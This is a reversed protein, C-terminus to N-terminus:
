PARNSRKYLSFNPGPREVGDFGAFPAYFMDQPDYVQGGNSPFAPFDQIREYGHELLQLVEPQTGSPLPSDQLLIWEPTGAAPRKDPDVVFIRRNRDWVWARYKDRTFQVYGYASGSMLVTSGAPVHDDFWRAVVVRNDTQSIIRDFRFSSIAPPLVLLVAVVAVIAESKIFRTVFRAAALCVFPVLPIAYRFFLNRISGAVVFYTIPFSLLLFATRPEFVFLAAAGAIGAALLPLGLGYRLSFQLHHLWGASLELGRSGIEMSQRLLRIEDLFRPLDFVLFPVGIAFAALFPVGYTLLRPDRVAQTRREAPQEFINIAYSVLLPAILLVANYKTAAALGGLIGAIIFDRRRKSLHGDVIFAVSWTLLCTMAVDTTAFHSDRVHLFALAMFLAAVLGTPVGWIRRAIRFVILVTGTGMVASLGRPILFFPEWHFKWSAVFEAISHFAGTFHGWLFYLFYLGSLTWMFLWPYDYFDPRFNGRLFSLAVDIIITEDPRTNTHPLGFSLGWFRAVAAIAVIAALGLQTRRNM